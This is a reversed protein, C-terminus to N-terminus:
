RDFTLDMFNLVHLFVRAMPNFFSAKKAIIGKFIIFYRFLIGIYNALIHRTKRQLVSVWCKLFHHDLGSSDNDSNEVTPQEKEETWIEETNIGIEM